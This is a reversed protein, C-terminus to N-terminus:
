QTEALNFVMTDNGMRLLVQNIDEDLTSAMPHIAKINMPLFAAKIFVM